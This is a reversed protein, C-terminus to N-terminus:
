RTARPLDWHGPIWSYWDGAFGWHGAEYQSGAAPPNEWQGPVWVWGANPATTQNGQFSWGGGVYVAGHAHARAGAPAAAMSDAPPAARTLGASLLGALALGTIRHSITSM